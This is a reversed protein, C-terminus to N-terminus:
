SDELSINEFLKIEKVKENQFIISIVDLQFPIDQYKKNKTLWFEILRSLKKRKKFDIREEPRFYSNFKSETTKVEIFHLAKSKFIFFRRKEELAIIDIEGIKTQYNQDLIKFGREKLFEAAKREGIKGLIKTSIPM